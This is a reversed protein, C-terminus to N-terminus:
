ARVHQEPMTATIGVMTNLIVNTGDPTKKKRGNYERDVAYKKERKELKNEYMIMNAVTM